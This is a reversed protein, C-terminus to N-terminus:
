ALARVSLLDQEIAIAVDSLRALDRPRALRRVPVRRAVTVLASWGDVSGAFRALAQAPSNRTLEFLAEPRDLTEVSVQEADVLVYVAALRLGVTTTSPLPLECKDWEVPRLGGSDISLTALVDARLRLPEGIPEVLELRSADM